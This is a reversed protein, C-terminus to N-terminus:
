LFYKDTMIAATAIGIKKCRSEVIDYSRFFLQPQMTSDLVPNKHRSRLSELRFYGVLANRLGFRGVRLLKCRSFALNHTTYRATEGGLFDCGTKEQRCMRHGGM